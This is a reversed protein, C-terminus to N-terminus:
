RHDPSGPSAPAPLWRGRTPSQASCCRGALDAPVVLAALVLRVGPVVPCHLRPQAAPRVPDLQLPDCHRARVRRDALSVSVESFLAIRDALRGRAVCVTCPEGGRADFGTSARTENDGPDDFNFLKVQDHIVRGEGKYEVSVGDVLFRHFRRNNEELVPSETRILKRIAEDIAAPPIKANIRTAAVRLREVLVVDQYSGREAFMEGPAIHPGHLITYNLAAFVELAAEEVTSETFPVAAASHAARARDPQTGAM